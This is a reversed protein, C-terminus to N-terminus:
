SRKAVKLLRLIPTLFLKRTAARLLASRAIVAALPPSFHYYLDVFRTGLRSRLLVQDRFTKLAVVEPALASGYAATAVFCMGKKPPNEIEDKMQRALLYTEDDQFNSIIYNLEALSDEKQKLAYFVGAKAFHAGPYDFIQLAKDLLALAERANGKEQQKAILAMTMSKHDAAQMRFFGVSHFKTMAQFTYFAAEHLLGEESQPFQSKVLDIQKRYIELKRQLEKQIPKAHQADANALQQGMTEIDKNYQELLAVENEIKQSMFEGKKDALNNPEDPTHSELFRARNRLCFDIFRERKVLRLAPHSLVLVDYVGSVVTRMLADDLFADRAKPGLREKLLAKVKPVQQELLEDTKDRAKNKIESFM